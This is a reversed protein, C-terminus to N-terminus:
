KKKVPDKEKTQRKRSDESYDITSATTRTPQHGSCFNSNAVAESECGSAACKM